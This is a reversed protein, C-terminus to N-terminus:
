FGVGRGVRYLVDVGRVVLAGDVHALGTLECRAPTVILQPSRPRTAYIEVFLHVACQRFLLLSSEPRQWNKPRRWLRRTNRFYFKGLFFGAAYALHICRYSGCSSLTKM